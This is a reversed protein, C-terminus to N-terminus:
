FGLRKYGSSIQVFNRYYVIIYKKRFEIYSKHANSYMYNLPLCPWAARTCFATFTWERLLTATFM